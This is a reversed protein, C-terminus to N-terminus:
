ASNPLIGEPSCVDQTSAQTSETAPQSSTLGELRTVASRLREPALHAYRMTMALSSHGLLEQLEKLSVGRMVAWSAFTHRLTHFNVDDLKANRVANEYAKRLSQRRFVRGSEKPGLIVLATYSDGNLPVERRKGGKTLELRIVGRSLDVRDWTLGLLESRRLGTNIAVVAAARLDRNRSKGCAELLKKIEDETLWRLRGQPEKELRIKPVAPLVEWEEHAVRLLHRLLALPRNVAAATLLREAGPKGVKSALGKAKYESIRSATLDELPTDVGFASKLHKLFREDKKLTRKRVKTALYREAAEALTMGHRPKPQEVKLLFAALAQEADDKTWEAKYVRKQKGDM